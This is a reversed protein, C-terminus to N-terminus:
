PREGGDSDATVTVLERGLYADRVVQLGSVEGATGEAIKIGFDLVIVRDCTEMVLDVDHEVFLVATNSQRAYSRILSGVQASDHADLGATPEDLLLLKIPAAVARAIAAVRRAGYSLESPRRGLDDTLGFQDIVLEAEGTLLPAPSIVLDALYGSRTRPECSTVINEFVTLDEFLELSQFSRRIGLRARQTANRRDVTLGSLTVTGKYRPVFGSITDILTSKGAGNAGILGVVEGARITCSVDSLATVGGFTVTLGQVDLVVDAADAIRSPPASATPDIDYAPGAAVAPRSPADGKSLRAKGLDAADSAPPQSGPRLRRRLWTRIATVQDIQLKVLGDPSLVLNVVLLGSAIAEYIQTSAFLDIAVQTVVGGTYILGAVLSGSAFGIGALVVFLVLLISALPSFAAYNINPEIYAFLVGGVGAIVASVTFAYLKVTPVSIGLSAAARENSRVALLRRGTPSDRVTAVVYGCLLACLLTILGYRWEHTVPYVSWGLFKIEGVFTGGLGGTLKSNNFIMADAVVALGLTTVALSIGRTRLAPLGVLIGVPIMALPGVVLALSFPLGIHIALQGSVWAAMGGLTFQCLSLQGAFGTIVVVSLALIVGICSLSFATQWTPSFTHSVLAAVVVLPLVIKWRFGGRGVAPLSIAAAGRGPLNEGRIALVLLTLAFAVAYGLGPTSPAYRTFESQAVGLALAAAMMLGFSSFRGLLAAALAPVIFLTISNPAVGIIPALLVGATAGLGGGITWNLTAILNPSHGLASSAQENTAVASTVLGFRTRSYVFGLVLTLALSLGLIIMRDSGVVVGDAVKIPHAPLFSPVLYFHDQIRWDIFSELFVMIGLTAIVRTLPSSRRMPRMVLQQTAAGLLMGSAIAAMISPVTPWGYSTRLEYYVTAGMFAFAGQAINLVGSGRYIVIVGGSLLGYPGGISLGLLAFQLLDRM